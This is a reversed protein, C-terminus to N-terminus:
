KGEKGTHNIFMLVGADHPLTPAVAGIPDIRAEQNEFPAAVAELGNGSGPCRQLNRAEPRSSGNFLSVGPVAGRM